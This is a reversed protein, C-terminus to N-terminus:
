DIYICLLNKFSVKNFLSMWYHNVKTKFCYDCNREMFINIQLSIYDPISQHINELQFIAKLLFISSRFVSEQFENILFCYVYKMKRYLQLCIHTHSWYYHVSSCKFCSIYNTKYLHLTELTSSKAFYEWQLNEWWADFTLLFVFKTCSLLVVLFM